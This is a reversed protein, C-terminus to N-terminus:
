CSCILRFTKLKLYIRGKKKLSVNLGIFCVFFCVSLKSFGCIKALIHTDLFQASDLEMRKQLLLLGEAREKYESNHEVGQPWLSHVADYPGVLAM